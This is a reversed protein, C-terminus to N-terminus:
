DRHTEGGEFFAFASYGVVRSRDGATDGSNRLDLLRPWLGHSRAVALLGNIPTAGCAQEYSQLPVLHLVQDVTAQDLERALAYPHYHSLDSSIVILTDDDGWVTELVRAVAEGDAAGVVLPLLDFDALVTQLFPLQVELSHELAHADDNVKVEPLALVRALAEEALPVRGLPTEFWAASSAALGRFPLRHAPGLLVVHRISDRWPTLCAYARAAVPGSYVYGAHPVLLVKPKDQSEAPADALLAAVQGALEGPNGPYFMGAVAAPRLTETM